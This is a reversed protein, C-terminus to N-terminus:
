ERVAIDVDPTHLLDRADIASVVALNTVVVDCDIGIPVRIEVPGHPAREGKDAIFTTAPGARPVALHGLIAAPVVRDTIALADVGAHLQPNFFTKLCGM